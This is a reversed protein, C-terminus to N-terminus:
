VTQITHNKVDHHIDGEGKNFEPYFLIELLNANNKPLEDKTKYM